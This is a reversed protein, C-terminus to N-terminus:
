MFGLTKYAARADQLTFQGLATENGSDLSTVTFLAGFIPSLLRSTRGLQGMSFCVIRAKQSARSTFELVKLNDTVSRATTIIKCVDAGIAIEKELTKELEEVERTEDFDHSSVILKVNARLAERIVGKLGPASLEVDIYDVGNKAAEILTQQRRSESGSYEGGCDVSRNTAILPADCLRRLEALNCADGIHDIRLEVFDPACVGAEEALRV